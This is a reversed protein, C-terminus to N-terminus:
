FIKINSNFRNKIESYFVKFTFFVESRSKILYICTVQSHDDMFSIIYRFKLKSPLPHPGWVDSHVLDFSKDARKSIQSPHSM